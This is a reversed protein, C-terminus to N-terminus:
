VSVTERFSKVIENISGPKFVSIQKLNNNQSIVRDLYTVETLLVGPGVTPDIDVFGSTNEYHHAANYQKSVSEVNVLSATGSTEISEGAVFNGKVMIQGLDLNRHLIKSTAGSTRGTVTDGTKFFGTLSTLSTRTTIIDNPYKRIAYRRAENNSLPWGQERLKDNLFFFTWHYTPTGYLKLSVQDPREDEQVYYDTYLSKADKVQDIIDAYVTINQFVDSTKENGFNYFVKPFYEFYNAM